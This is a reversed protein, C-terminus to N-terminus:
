RKMMMNSMDHLNLKFSIYFFILRSFRAQSNLFFRILQFISLFILVSVGSPITNGNNGSPQGPYDPFNPTPRPGPAPYGTPGIPRQPTPSPFGPTPRPGPSPYGQTPPRGPIAPPRSTPYTPQTPRTPGVPFGTTPPRSPPFQSPRPPFPVSPTNYDYGKTPDPPLYTNRRTGPPLDSLVGSIVM